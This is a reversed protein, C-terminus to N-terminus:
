RCTSITVGSQAWAWAVIVGATVGVVLTDGTVALPTLFAKKVGSTTGYSPLTVTAAAQGDSHLAFARRDADMVVCLGSPPIPRASDARLIPIPELGAATNAAVFRPKLGAQIRRRNANAFFARRRTRGDQERVEDYQVLVDGRKSDAFLLLRPDSAPENFHRFSENNWLKYTLSDEYVTSCGAVLALWGLALLRFAGRVAPFRIAKM